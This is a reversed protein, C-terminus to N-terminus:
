RDIWADAWISISVTSGPTDCTLEDEEDAAPEFFHGNGDLTLPNTNWTGAADTFVMPTGGEAYTAPLTATIAGASTDVKYRHGAVAVFNATKIEWPPVNIAAIEAPPLNKWAQDADSWVKVFDASTLDGAAVEADGDATPIRIFPVGDSVIKNGASFSVAAGTSSSVPTARTITGGVITALCIEWEAPLTEHEIRAWFQDGEEAGAAAYTRNGTTATTFTLAAAGVGVALQETKDFRKIAM